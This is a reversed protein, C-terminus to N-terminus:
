TPVEFTVQLPLFCDTATPGFPSVAQITGTSARSSGPLTSRHIAVYGDLSAAVHYLMRRM